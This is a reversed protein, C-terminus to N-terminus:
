ENRSFSFIVSLLFIERHCRSCSATLTLTTRLISSKQTNICNCSFKLQLVTLEICSSTCFEDCLLLLPTRHLLQHTTPHRWSSHPPHRRCCPLRWWLYPVDAYLLFYYIFLKSYDSRLILLYILSYSLVNLCRLIIKNIFLPLYIHQIYLTDCFLTM